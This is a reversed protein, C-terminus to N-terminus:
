ASGMAEALRELFLERNSPSIVFNLGRHRAIEVVSKASTAFRVGGYIFAKVGAVPRAEKITALPINVAFPKGLVIIVRDSWVQYRRPLITYFLLGDFATIALFIYAGTRDVTLLYLGMVLTFALIGGLLLKLWLDYKATDEYLTFSEQNSSM